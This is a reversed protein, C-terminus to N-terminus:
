GQCTGEVADSYEGHRGEDDGHDDDKRADKQPLEPNGIQILYTTLKGKVGNVNGTRLVYSQSTRTSAGLIVCSM